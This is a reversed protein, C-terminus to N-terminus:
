RSVQASRGLCAEILAAEVRELEAEVEALWAPSQRHLEDASTTEFPRCIDSLQRAGVNAAVSHLAHAQARFGAVDGQSAAERLDEFRARSESRASDAVEIVFEDGGLMRLGSVVQADLAPPLVGRFRPHAAIDTVRPDAMAASRAGAERAKGVIEDIMALLRTPEVPKVACAAMGAELCCDRTAPTADATLALLPITVSGMSSMRYIKAAEIGGMVPMNVDLVAADFDQDALADLAQEGDTVLTVSHGASRFIKQLVHRNTANDDAVLLNYSERAGPLPLEAPASHGITAAVFGLVCALDADSAPLYLISAFDRRPAGVPLGEVPVGAVPAERVDVFSLADADSAEAFSRRPTGPGISDFALLCRSAAATSSLWAPPAANVQEIRVGCDALRGLLPVVVDPCSGLVFARLDPFSPKVNLVVPQRQLGLEFWFTSGAGPASEVGIEGGLLHLSKRVIALGLGTGGFRNVISDDAQTFVEFIRERAEPAIGIGTDMVEFRLRVQEDQRAVADVAVTVSGADTFKLANGVLNLLIEHLRRGDGHLLLPTRAAVHLNLRVGKLRAQAAFITRIESLLQALDFDSSARSVRGAEISSLDLIGDILSLLSRASVMITHSMHAQEPNLETSELLAGMGIVANLPTRLEHSVSALFLSKARNAEEAQLTAQSLRKILALAYLPVIALSVVGGIVLAPQNRWFPTYAAVVLFGVTTVVMGLAQFRSGFRFGNGFIVWLYSAFLWAATGGGAHLEYSIAACDLLMAAIRRPSSVIPRIILHLGILWGLLLYTASAILPFGSMLGRPAAWANFGLVLLGAIFRNVVMVQEGDVAAGRWRELIAAARWREPATKLDKMTGVM